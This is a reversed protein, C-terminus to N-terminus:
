VGVDETNLTGTVFGRGCHHARSLLRYRVDDGRLNGGMLGVSSHYGLKRGAFMEPRDNWHHPLSEGFRSLLILGNVRERHSLSRAKGAREQDSDTIRLRQREREFLRKNGDVVEFAVNMSDQEFLPLFSIALQPKRHQRKNDGASVRM